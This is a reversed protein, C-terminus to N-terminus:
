APMIFCREVRFDPFARACIFHRGPWAEVNQPCSWGTSASGPSTWVWRRALTERSTLQRGKQLTPVLNVQSVWGTEPGEGELKKYEIRSVREM